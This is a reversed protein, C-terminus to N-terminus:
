GVKFSDFIVIAVMLGEAASASHASSLPMEGSSGRFAYLVGGVHVVEAGLPNPWLVRRM